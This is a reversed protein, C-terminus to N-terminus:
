TLSTLPKLHDMQNFTYAYAHYYLYKYIYVVLIIKLANICNNKNRIQELRTPSYLATCDVCYHNIIFLFKM